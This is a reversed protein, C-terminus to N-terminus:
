DSVTFLRASVSGNDIEVVAYMGDKAPGPNVFTTGNVHKIGYDEHIHGSLVLIPRYEKVIKLISTSGVNLGSPIMDNIGYPPAHVMLIMGEKSIPKLMRYITEEDLEFPTNFITPNSGGLGAVHFGDLDATKGHMDMAVGSITEPLSIPDCNGPLAYVDRKVPGLIEEAIRDPGFDTIDGLALVYDVDEQEAVSNVWDTVDRNGHIDSIVLFKM